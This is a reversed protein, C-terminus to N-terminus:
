RKRAFGRHKPDGPSGDGISAAAASGVTAHFSTTFDLGLTEGAVTVIVPAVEVPYAGCAEGNDCIFGDNNM